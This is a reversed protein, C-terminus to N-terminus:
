ERAGLLSVPAPRLASWSTIISTLGTVAFAGLGVVAMLTWPLDLTAVGTVASTTTLVAVYTGIAAVTGLFIGILTVAASELLAARLVQGRTLGTARAAAFERGRAAAAIVVANVVGILAYLGGLGLVILMINNGTETRSEADRTLWDEVGTVPGLATLAATVAARDAGPALSVFTRSPADALQAAPIVGAPVLLGAGGGMTTPVAAVVPLRQDTDAFRVTVTDGASFGDGGPGRAVATGRLATLDGSGPHAATYAAPDIVLASVIDAEREDDSGTTVSAPTETETSSAAIGPIGTVPAPGTTEVVLDANTAARQEAVGSATFSTTAGAQGFVIGILVILPAATAASRRVEDRLNARALMGTVGTAPLLRAVAPVLLPGFMTLAVALCLSVNMTMAQGGGAGGVPALIILAIAGALFFLGAVWRGATMVRGADPERLADLPRVRAARRAAVLVGSVALGLGVGGSVGLIWDRWQGTFGDPVFGFGTLLRTQVRMVGIGAPIGAATGVLGLLLAEGLLLRRVHRRGGGVLRLLALDRRRQAVTFAFTSSIIFVALFVSFGLTVGLLAVSADAGDSFRLREAPTLGPPPDLVAASILLLLSSQVLAVGLCVSLAAGVFLKWREDLGSWSM